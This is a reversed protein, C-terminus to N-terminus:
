ARVGATVTGTGPEHFWGAPCTIFQEKVNQIVFTKPEGIARDVIAYDQDGIEISITFPGISEVVSALCARRPSSLRPLASGTKPHRCGPNAMLFLM